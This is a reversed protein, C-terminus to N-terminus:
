GRMGRHVVGCLSEWVVRDKGRVWEIGVERALEVVRVRVVLATEREQGGDQMRDEGDKQRREYARRYSRSWVNQSAEVIGTLTDPDWTWRLDLASFQAILIDVAATPSLSPPLPIPYTTPFPLYIAPLNPPRAIAQSDDTSLGGVVKVVLSLFFPSSTSILRRVNRPRWDGFSWAVVWRKTVGGTDVVGVAWNEVGQEKLLVIVSKASELKGFLSSYWQVKERLVLSENVLKTVFGVDGGPCVMEVEAGTCIANPKYSKGEGHLSAAMDATDTFFPPNCLTFDLHTVGLGALPILPNQPTTQLLTTRTLLNNVALNRAAADFSKKDIDTACMHWDPRSQLALMTYIASAGTGIDLGTIKRSPDYTSTYTPATSDLLGHLWAIYNWRNPIPPCLRDDPIELQLNFDTKLIAKSLARVTEPDQFDLKGSSKQWIQKFTDDKKTLAKFDVAVYPPRQSLDM